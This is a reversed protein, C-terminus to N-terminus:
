SHLGIRVMSKLCKTDFIRTSSLDNFNCSALSFSPLHADVELLLLLIQQDRMHTAVCSGDNKAAKASITTQDIWSHDLWKGITPLWTFLPVPALPQEAPTDLPQLVQGTAGELSALCGSLVQQLPIIPFMDNELGRLSLWAPLGFSVGIEDLTLIQSGWQSSSYSTQCAMPWDLYQPDLLLNSVYFDQQLLELTAALTASLFIPRIGYDLNHGILHGLCSFMPALAFGALGM